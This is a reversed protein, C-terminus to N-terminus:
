EKVAGGAPASMKQLDEPTLDAPQANQSTQLVRVYAAIAWRDPQEVQFARPTMTGYGNTIVDYFHGIPMNRLRVTHYNGVPRKSNFGRLAIMGKGDGMKGHCPSCFIDYRERGRELMKHTDNDFTKYAALPIAEVYQAGVLKEGVVQGGTYGTFYQEDTKLGGRAITHAVPPRSGAGDAFFESASQPKDKNQVWMDIHCGTLLFLASTTAALGLAARRLRSRSHM